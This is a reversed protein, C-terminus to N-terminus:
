SSSPSLRIMHTRHGAGVVEGAESGVTVRDIVPEEVPRRGRALIAHAEDGSVAYSAVHKYLRSYSDVEPRVTLYATRTNTGVVVLREDFIAFASM